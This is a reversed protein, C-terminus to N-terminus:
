SKFRLRRKCSPWATVLLDYVLSGLLCFGERVGRSAWARSRRCFGGVQIKDVSRIKPFMINGVYKCCCCGRNNSWFFHFYNLPCNDNFHIWSISGIVRSVRTKCANKLKSSFKSRLRPTSVAVLSYYWVPLSQSLKLSFM